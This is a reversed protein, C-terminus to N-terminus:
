AYVEWAADIGRAPLTRMAARETGMVRVCRWAYVDSRARDGDRTCMAVYVISMTFVGFFASVAPQTCKKQSGVGARRSFAGEDNGWFRRPPRGAWADASARRTQASIGTRGGCGALETSGASLSARM